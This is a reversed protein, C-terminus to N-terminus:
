DKYHELMETLLSKMHTILTDPALVICHKDLRMLESVFEYNIILKYSFTSYGQEDTHLLEQSSHIPNNQIYESFFPSLKVKVEQVEKSGHIDRGNIGVLNPNSVPYYDDRTFTSENVLHLDTLRDLGYMRKAKTDTRLGELYWNLQYEKLYYPELTVEFTNGSGYQRYNFRIPIRKTIALLISSLVNNVKTINERHRTDYIVYEEFRPDDHFGLTYLRFHLSDFYEALSENLMSQDEIIYREDDYEIDINFDQELHTIARSITRISTFDDYEERLIRRIEQRNTVRNRKILDYIIFARRTKDM